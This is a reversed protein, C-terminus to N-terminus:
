FAVLTDYTGILHSACSVRTAVHINNNLLKVKQASFLLTKFRNNPFFDTNVM